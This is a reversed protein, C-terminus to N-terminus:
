LGEGSSERRDSISSALGGTSTAHLGLTRQCLEVIVRARRQSASPQAPAVSHNV